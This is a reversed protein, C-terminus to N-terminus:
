YLVEFDVQVWARNEATFAPGVPERIARVSAAGCPASEDQTAQMLAEAVEILQQADERKDRRGLVVVRYRPRRDDVDPAPGGTAQIVCLRSNVTSQTELWMGYAYTFSSGIVSAAWDKFHTIM